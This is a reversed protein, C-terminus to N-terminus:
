GPNGNNLVLFCVAYLSFHVLTPPNEHYKLFHFPTTDETRVQIVSPAEAGTAALIDGFDLDHTFVRGGMINRDFSMRFSFSEHVNLDYKEKDTQIVM